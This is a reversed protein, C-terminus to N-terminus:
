NKGYHEYAKKKSKIIQQKYKIIEKRVEEAEKKAAEESTCFVVMAGYRVEIALGGIAPIFVPEGRIYRRLFGPKKAMCYSAIGHLTMGECIARAEKTSIGIVFTYTM